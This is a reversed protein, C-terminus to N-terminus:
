GNASFPRDRTLEFIALEVQSRTRGFPAGWRDLLSLYIEYGKTRDIRFGVLEDAPVNAVIWDRVRKDLIPAVREDDISETMSSFSMWKTFFAGGLYKIHGKNNLYYFADVPNESRAIQAGKILHDRISEIVPSDANSRTREGTLISRTRFPGYGGPGGWIMVPVFAGLVRDRVLNAQVVERIVERSLVTPLSDVTERADAVDRVVKAWKERNWEFGRQKPLEASLRAALEAPTGVESM